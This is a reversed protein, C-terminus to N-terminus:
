SRPRLIRWTFRAATPDRNGSTDTARVRFTHRGPKLNRYTRPSGCRRFPRRDLKCMFTGAESSRFAFRATRRRTRKPPHRVITTQPPGVDAPGPGPGPEQCATETPATSNNRPTPSTASFDAASDNSDDPGDLLSACGRSITRTLSEAVAPAAADTGAPSPLTVASFGGWSVCDISEFCVASQGIDDALGNLQSWIFDPAVQNGAPGVSGSAGILITRQNGGDGAPGPFTFDVFGAATSDYYSLTHGGVFNQGGAYMQLEIYASAPDNGPSPAVERIQMVHFVAQASPVWVLGSAFALGILLM